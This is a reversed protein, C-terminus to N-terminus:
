SWNKQVRSRLSKFFCTPRTFNLAYHGPDLIQGV